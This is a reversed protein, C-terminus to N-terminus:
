GSVRNKLPVVHPKDDMHAKVLRGRSVQLRQHVGIALRHRSPDLAPEEPRAPHRLIPGELGAYAGLECAPEAPHLLARRQLDASTVM